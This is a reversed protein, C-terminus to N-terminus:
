GFCPAGPSTEGTFVEQHLRAGSGVLPLAGVYLPKGVTRRPPKRKESTKESAKDSAVSLHWRVREVWTDPKVRAPYELGQIAVPDLRIDGAPDMARVDYLAAYVEGKGANLCPCVIPAPQPDVDQEIRKPGPPNSLAARALDWALAELSSVAFVPTDWALSMGKAVSFGVRLGTFNGPGAGMFVAKLDHPRTDHRTLLADVLSLLSKPTNPGRKEQTELHKGGADLLCVSAVPTSTDFALFAM